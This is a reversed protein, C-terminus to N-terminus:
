QCKYPGFISKVNLSTDSDDLIYINFEDGEPLVRVVIHGQTSKMQKTLEGIVIRTAPLMNTSFVDRHGTYIQKALMRYLTSHEPHLANSAQIIFVQPKLSKIFNENTSYGYGHHNSVCVETEGIVRGLPTEVDHWVPRGPKPYGTLDGGTYYNFKGYTIRIACSLTNEEPIDHKSLGTLDPFLNVVNEGDGNWMIGNAMLNRIEFDFYKEPNNKLVFQSNTGVKFKEIMCCHKQQLSYVFKLYNIFAKNDKEKPSLFNYVPYDRDVIKEMPITEFVDSVGTLFYDTDKKQQKFVGGIHDNHFHTALCYNLIKLNGQPIIKMIYEAIRKGPTKRADPKPSVQRENNPNKDGADILMTTADPFICFTCNGCGTNIHHIDLYGEKWGPLKKGIKVQSSSIQANVMSSVIVSLVTLVIYKIM